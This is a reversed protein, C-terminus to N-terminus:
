VLSGQQTVDFTEIASDTASTVVVTDIVGGGTPLAVQELEFDFRYRLIQTHAPDGGVNTRTVAGWSLPAIRAFAPHPQSLLNAVTRSVAVVGSDEISSIEVTLEGSFRVVAVDWMGIRYTISLTGSAPLPQGFTVLGAGADIHVERGSPVTDVLVYSGDGDSVAVTETDVIPGHALIATLRDPPILEVVENGFELTPNALDIADTVALSGTKSGGPSEGIGALLAAADEVSIVVVPLASVSGPEVDSVTVGTLETGLRDALTDVVIALSM